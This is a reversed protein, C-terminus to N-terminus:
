VFIESFVIEKARHRINNMKGVWLMADEAKLQETVGEQKALQDVLDDFMKRARQETEYVHEHLKCSTLLSTYLIKHHEKLFDMYQFGWVGIDYEKQEPLVLDPIYYDGVKTYTGGMREFISLPRENNSESM